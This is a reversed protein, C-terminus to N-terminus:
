GFGTAKTYQLFSFGFRGHFDRPAGSRCIDTAGELWHTCTLLAKEVVTGLDLAAHILYRDRWVYLTSVAMGYKKCIATAARTHFYEKLVILIFIICYTKRPTLVDPIVAHTQSCPLCKTREIRVIHDQVGGDYDVLHRIYGSHPKMHGCTKCPPPCQTQGPKYQRMIEHFLEIGSPVHKFDTKYLITFLRIM